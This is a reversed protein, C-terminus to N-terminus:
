KKNKQKGLDRVARKVKAITKLLQREHDNLLKVTKAAATDFYRNAESLHFNFQAAEEDLRKLLQAITEKKKKM